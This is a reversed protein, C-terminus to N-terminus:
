EEDELYPNPKPPAVLSLILLGTFLVAQSIVAIVKDWDLEQDVKLYYTGWWFAAAIPVLTASVWRNGFRNFSHNPDVKARNVVFNYLMIGIMSVVGILTFLAWMSQPEYTDWLTTRTQWADLGTTQEFFPLVESKQMGALTAESVSHEEVLYRKALVVKDGGKQYLFGAIISGVSWGIGVTFNVYGMYLGEKGKPAISALYRMKTPSATMEGFSFLAIAGLCWWGNASMGLAYIAVASVGIGIIIATLAKVRNTLYGFAFATLSILLANENIMWAQTMNGGNVTPIGLVISGGNLKIIAYAALLVGYLGLMWKNRRLFVFRQAVFGLAIMFVAIGPLIHAFDFGGFAGDLWKAAGRSDVWDDIFNPLIDFLQYFMLWFGAFSITFFFLRPELLGRFADSLVKFASDQNEAGHHEPEKFFFLPLYNLLIGGTCVLYVLHWEMMEMYGAVMPGIFGGINVFQYFMAWGLASKGKPMQHAILGQLGPKFVATGAALFMAGIFFLTYAHDEGLARAEVMPTGTLMESIKLCYGMLLYGVIKLTTAVAINAKYGFRDAFGGTFIPVFSQVLAWVAYITGKQNHDFEPYGLEVAKVMMVPLVVRVGYYAFREVLEMWNAIWYIFSFHENAKAAPAAAESMALFSACGPVIRPPM